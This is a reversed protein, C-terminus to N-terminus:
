KSTAKIAEAVNQIAESMLVKARVDAVKIHLEIRDRHGSKNIEDDLRILQELQQEKSM